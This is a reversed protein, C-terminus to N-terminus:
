HTKAAEPSNQICKTLFFIHWRRLSRLQRRWDINCTINTVRWRRLGIYCSMLEAIM